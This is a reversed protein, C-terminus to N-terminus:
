EIEYSVAVHEVVKIEGTFLSTAQAMLGATSKLMMSERPGPPLPASAGQPTLQYLNKIKVQSAKALVQVKEFANKVADILLSKSIEDRKELDWIINQINIGTKLNKSDIVLDDLFKGVKKSNKITIQINQNVMYGVIKNSTTKPDYFYDPNLEYGTTQIESSLIAHTDITKKLQEYQIQNLSQAMKANEAKSWLTLNVHAMDPEFSKSAEGLVNILRIPEAFANTTLLIFLFIINKM